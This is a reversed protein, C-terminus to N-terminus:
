RAVCVVRGHMCLISFIVRAPQAPLVPQAVPAPQVPLAPQAPSRAPSSTRATSSRALSFPQAPSSTRASTCAPRPKRTAVSPRHPYSSSESSTPRASQAMPSPPPGLILKGLNESNEQGLEQPGTTPSSAGDASLPLDSGAMTRVDSDAKGLILKSADDMMQSPQGGVKVLRKWSSTKKEPWNSAPAPASPRQVPKGAFWRGSRRLEPSEM